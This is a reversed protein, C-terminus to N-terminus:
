GASSLATPLPRLCFRGTGHPPWSAADIVGSVFARAILETRNQAGIRFLMNGIHHTATHPSIGLAAAAKGTDLGIALLCLLEVERVTLHGVNCCCDGHM